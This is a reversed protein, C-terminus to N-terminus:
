QGPEASLDLGAPGPRPGPDGHARRGVQISRLRRLAPRETGVARNGAGGALRIGALFVGRGDLHFAGAQTAPPGGVALHRPHRGRERGQPGRYPYSWKVVAGRHFIADIRDALPDGVDAALGLGPLALDGLIPCIRDADAERRYRRLNEQIRETARELQPARVLCYVTASTRQLLAELLFAGLFGTAGTLLVADLTRSPPAAGDPDLAPGLAAERSMEEVSMRALPTPVAKALLNVVGAPLRSLLLNRKAPSLRAFRELLESLATGRGKSSRRPKRRPSGNWRKWCRAVDAGQTEASPM